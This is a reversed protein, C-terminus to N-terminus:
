DLKQTTELNTIYCFCHSLAYASNGSWKRRSTLWQKLYSKFLTHLYNTLQCVLVKLNQKSFVQQLEITNNFATVYKTVMRLIYKLKIRANRLQEETGLLQKM